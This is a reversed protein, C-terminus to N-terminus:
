LEPDAATPEEILKELLMRPPWALALAAALADAM